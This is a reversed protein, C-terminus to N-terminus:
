AQAGLTANATTGAITTTVIRNPILNRALQGTQLTAPMTNAILQVRRTNSVSRLDTAPCVASAM